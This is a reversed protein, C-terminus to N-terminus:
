GGTERTEDKERKRMMREVKDKSFKNHSSKHWLAKITLWILHLLTRELTPPWQYHM